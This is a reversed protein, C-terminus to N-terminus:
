TTKKIRSSTYNHQSIESPYMPHYHKTDKRPIPSFIISIQAYRCRKVWLPPLEFRFFNAYLKRVQKTFLVAYRIILRFMKNIMHHGVRYLDTVDRRSGSNFDFLSEVVHVARSTFRTNEQYGHKCESILFKCKRGLSCLILKVPM